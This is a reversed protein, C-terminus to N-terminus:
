YSILLSLIYILLLNSGKQELISNKKTNVIYPDKESKLFVM